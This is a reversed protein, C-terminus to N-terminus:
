RSVKVSIIMNNSFINNRLYISNKDCKQFTSIFFMLLYVFQNPWPRTNSTVRENTIWVMVCKDIIVM